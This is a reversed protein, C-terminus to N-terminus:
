WEWGEISGDQKYLKKTEMRKKQRQWILEAIAIIADEGKSSFLIAHVDSESVDLRYLYSFLLDIEREMMIRVRDAIANIIEGESLSEEGTFANMELDNSIIEFFQKNLKDM